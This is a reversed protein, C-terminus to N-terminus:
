SIRASVSGHEQPSSVFRLHVQPLRTGLSHFALAVLTITDFLKKASLGRKQQVTFLSQQWVRYQTLFLFIFVISISHQGWDQHKQNLKQLKDAQRSHKYGNKM